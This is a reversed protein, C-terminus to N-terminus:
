RMGGSFISYREPAGDSAGTSERAQRQSSSIPPSDGKAAPTYVWLLNDLRKEETFYRFMHRWLEKFPEPDDKYARSGWWFWQGTM